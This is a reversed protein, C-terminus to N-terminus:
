KEKRKILRIEFFTHAVLALVFACLTAAISSSRLWSKLAQDQSYRLSDGDTARIELTIGGAGFLHRYSSIVAAVTKGKFRQTCAKGDGSFDASCHIQEGAIKTVPSCGPCSGGDFEYAGSITRIPPLVILM